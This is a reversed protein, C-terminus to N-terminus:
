GGPFREQLKPLANLDMATIIAKQGFHTVQSALRQGIGEILEHEQKVLASARLWLDDYIRNLENHIEAEDNTDPHKLNRILQLFETVKAKDNRAGGHNTSRIAADNDFEGNKLTESLAGATLVMVRSELYDLVGDLTLPKFLKIDAGAQHAQQDGDNGTFMTVCLDGARFGLVRASIYHGAEHKSVALVADRHHSQIPVLPPRGKQNKM